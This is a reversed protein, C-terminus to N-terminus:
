LRETKGDSQLLLNAKIFRYVPLRYLYTVMENTNEFVISFKNTAYIIEKLAKYICWM